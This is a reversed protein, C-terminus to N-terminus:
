LKLERALAALAQQYEEPPLGLSQLDCKFTEYDRWTVRGNSEAFNRAIWLLSRKREDLDRAKESVPEGLVATPASIPSESGMRM